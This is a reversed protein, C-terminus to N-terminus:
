GALVDRLHSESPIKGSGLALIRLLLDRKHDGRDGDRPQPRFRVLAQHLANAQGKGSTVDFLQAAERIAEDRADLRHQRLGNRSFCYAGLLDALAAPPLGLLIQRCHAVQEELPLAAVASRVRDLSLSASVAMVCGHRFLFFDLARM